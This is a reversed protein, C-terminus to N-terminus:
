LLGSSLQTKPTFLSWDAMLLQYNTMLSLMLGDELGGSSLLQSLLHFLSHLLLILHSGNSCFQQWSPQNVRFHFIGCYEEDFRQELPVVQKLISPQFTLAGISALFWCNGSLSVFHSNLTSVVLLAEVYQYM